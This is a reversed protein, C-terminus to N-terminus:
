ENLWPLFISGYCINLSTYLTPLNLKPCASQMYPVWNWQRGESMSPKVGKHHVGFHEVAWTEFM